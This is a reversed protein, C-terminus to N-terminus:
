VAAWLNESQPGYNDQQSYNALIQKLVNVIKYM